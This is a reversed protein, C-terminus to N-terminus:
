APQQVVVERGLPVEERRDHLALALPHQPHGGGHGTHRHALLDVRSEVGEQLVDLRVRVAEAGEMAGLGRPVLGHAPHVALREGRLLPLDQLRERRVRLGGPGLLVQGVSRIATRPQSAKM